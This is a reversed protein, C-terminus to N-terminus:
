FHECVLMNRRVFLFLICPMIFKTPSLMFPQHGVCMMPESHGTHHLISITYM